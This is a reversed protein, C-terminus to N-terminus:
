DHMSMDLRRAHLCTCVVCCSALKRVRAGRAGTTTWCTRRTASAPRRWTSRPWRGRRRRRSSSGRRCWQARAHEGAGAQQCSGRSRTGTATHSLSLFVPLSRLHHHRLSSSRPPEKQLRGPTPARSAKRCVISRNANWAPFALVTGGETHRSGERELRKESV